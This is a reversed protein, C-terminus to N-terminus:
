QRSKKELSIAKTLASMAAKVATVYSDYSSAVFKKGQVFCWRQRWECGYLDKCRGLGVAVVVTSKKGALYQMAGCVGDFSKALGNDNLCVPM